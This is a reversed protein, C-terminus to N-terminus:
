QSPGGAPAPPVRALKLACFDGPQLPSGAAPSQEVVFGDGKMQAAVGAATLTRVAERASLGRVDPMFGARAVGVVNDLRTDRAAVTDVDAARRTLLVLHLYIIVSVGFSLAYLNASYIAVPDNLVWAFPKLWM